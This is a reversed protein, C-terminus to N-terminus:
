RFKMMFAGDKVPLIINNDAIVIVKPQSYHLNMPSTWRISISEVFARKSISPIWSFKDNSLILGGCEVLYEDDNDVFIANPLTDYMYKMKSPCVFIFKSTPYKLELEQLRQVSNEVFQSNINNFNAVDVYITSEVLYAGVFLQINPAYDGLFPVAHLWEIPVIQTQLIEEVYKQPMTMSDLTNILQSFLEQKHDPLKQICYWLNAVSLKNVRNIHEILRGKSDCWEILIDNIPPWNLDVLADYTNIEIFEDLTTADNMLLPNLSKSHKIYSASMKYFESKPMNNKLLFMMTAIANLEYETSKKMPNINFNLNLNIILCCELFICM